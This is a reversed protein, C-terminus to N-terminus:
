ISRNFPPLEDHDNLYDQKLQVELQRPNNIYIYSIEMHTLNLLFSYIRQNTWQTPGPKFYSKIRTKIGGKQDTKGIYLIDSYGRLRGFSGNGHRIIYVGSTTPLGNILSQQNNLSFIYWNIFGYSIISNSDM